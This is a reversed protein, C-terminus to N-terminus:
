GITGMINILPLMVALLIVAVIASLIIVLATEITNAINNLSNEVDGDYIKSIKKMTGDLDGTKHGIKIMRVFLTPFLGAVLLADELADGERLSVGIKLICDRIYRNGIIGVVIDLGEEFGMGSKLVLAM